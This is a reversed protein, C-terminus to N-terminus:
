LMGCTPLLCRFFLCSDLTSARISLLPANHKRFRQLFMSVFGNEDRTSGSSSSLPCIVDYMIVFACPITLQLGNILLEAKDAPLYGLVSELVIITPRSAEFGHRTLTSILSSVSDRLDASIYKVKAADQVAAAAGKVALPPRARTATDEQRTIKDIVQAFDVCYTSLDHSRYSDDEGCGLLLLQTDRGPSALLSSLLTQHMVKM